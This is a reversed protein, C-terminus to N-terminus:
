SNTVARFRQVGHWSIGDPDRMSQRQEQRLNCLTSGLRTASSSTTPIYSSAFSSLSPVAEVQVGWVYNGSVGDGAYSNAGGSTVLSVFMYGAGTAAIAAISTVTCRYWGNALAVIQASTGASQLSVSGEGSLVFDALAIQHAAGADYLLIRIKRSGAALKAYLSAAYVTGITFTPQQYIAHQGTTGDEIVTDATVTGDPATATNANGAAGFQTWAANELEQSRLIINTRDGDLSLTAEHLLARVRTMINFLQAKASQGNVPQEAFSHVTVTHEQGDVLSGSYDNATDDGIDIYPARTGDPVGNFVFAGGLLTTLSADGNLAAYIATFLETSRDSM